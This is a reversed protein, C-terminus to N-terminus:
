ITTSQRSVLRMSSSLSLPSMTLPHSIGPGCSCYITRRLQGGGIFAKPNKSEKHGFLSFLRFSFPNTWSHYLSHTFRCASLDSFTMGHCLGDKNVEVVGGAGTTLPCISQSIIPTQGGLGDSRTPSSWDRDMQWVRFLPFGRGEKTEDGGEDRVRGGAVTRRQPHM